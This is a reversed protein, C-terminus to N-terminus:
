ADKVAHPILMLVNDVDAAGYLHGVKFLAGAIECYLFLDLGKRAYFIDM